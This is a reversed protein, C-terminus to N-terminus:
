PWRDDDQPMGSCLSNAAFQGNSINRCRYQGNSFGDWDYNPGGTLDTDGSFAGAMASTCSRSQSCAAVGVIAAASVGITGITKGLDFKKGDEWMEGDSSCANLLPTLTLVSILAICRLNMKGGLLKM